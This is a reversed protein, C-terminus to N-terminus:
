NVKEFEHMIKSFESDKIKKLNDLNGSETMKGNNLVYINQAISIASARHAIILVTTFKSIEKISNKILKESEQDLSSTAEDLILLQPKRLIARALIIRQREGGSLELGREGVITDLKKPLGMVLDYANAIKLSEFIEKESAKYNSWLLNEKITTYFLFPDQFVLSVKNRYSDLNFENLENKNDFLIKGDNVKQLGLILDVITSKGSGSKGIIATIENKNIKFSCDKIINEKGKYNFTVYEFTIKENFNKFEKGNTPEKNELAKKRIEVLQEYSPLFNNLVVTSGFLNSLVPIVAYLSWFIAVYESINKELNITIGISIIVALIALPKFFLNTLQGVLQSKITVAIHKDLSETNDKVAKERNGFGLIIKAAQITENMVGIVYNSTSTNLKGLRHSLNNLVLFPLGLLIATFLTLATLKFDLIFPIILYTLFQVSMAAMGALHGMADGVKPLEKNLTGLLKGQGLNTFFSWKSRFISKLLDSTLSRVISYKIKLIAYQILLTFTSRLINTFIFLAGFIFYGPELQFILLYKIMMNTIKSPNVLEPDLLYDALPVISIVSSAVVISELLILFLLLVVKKPFFKILELVISKLSKKLMM